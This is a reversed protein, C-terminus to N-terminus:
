SGIYGGVYQVVLYAWVSSMVILTLYLLDTKKRLVEFAMLQLPFAMLVYRNFGGYQHGVAPIL